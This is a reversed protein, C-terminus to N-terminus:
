IDAIGGFLHFHVLLYGGDLGILLKASDTLLELVTVTRKGLLDLVQERDRIDLCHSFFEMDRLYHFPAALM